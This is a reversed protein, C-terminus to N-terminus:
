PAPDREGRHGPGEGLGLSRPQGFQAGQSGLFSRVDQQREAPMLLDHGIQARHHRVLWQPLPHAPQQHDRQVAAASLGIGQAHVLFSLAYQGLFEADIGAEVQGANM